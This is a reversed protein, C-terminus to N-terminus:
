DTCVKVDPLGSSPGRYTVCGDCVFLEGASSFYKWRDEAGVTPANGVPVEILDDETVRVRGEASSVARTARQEPVAVAGGDLALAIAEVSVARRGVNRVLYVLNARAFLILGTGRGAFAVDGIPGKLEEVLPSEFDSVIRVLSEHAEDRSACEFLDIRVMANPVSVNTCLTRVMRPSIMPTADRELGRAQVMQRGLDGQAGLRAARLQKCITWDQADGKKVTWNCVCLTQGLRNRGRWEGYRLRRKVHDILSSSVDHM